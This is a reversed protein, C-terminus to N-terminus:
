KVRCIDCLDNAPKMTTVYPVYKAWIRRFSRNSMKPDDDQLSAIYKRYVSSRTENSPLKMVRYDKCKPLRGPLPLALLDATYEIFKVAKQIEAPKLSKPNTSPKNALGHERVTVGNKHYHTVLHGYRKKGCAHIFLFLSRCIPIGLFSFQIKHRTVEKGKRCGEIKRKAIESYVGQFEENYRIGAEINSLILCDTSLFKAILEEGELDAMSLDMKVFSEERDDRAQYLEYDSDLNNDIDSKDSDEENEGFYQRYVASFEEEVSM